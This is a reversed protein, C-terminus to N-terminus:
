LTAWVGVGLHRHCNFQDTSYYFPRPNHRAKGGIPVTQDQREKILM